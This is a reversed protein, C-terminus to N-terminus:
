QYQADADPEKLGTKTSTCAFSRAAFSPLRTSPSYLSASVTPNSPEWATHSDPSSLRRTNSDANLMAGKQATTAFGRNVYKSQDLLIMVGSNEVISDKIIPSSTIDKLEQAVVMASTRHKRATKWLELIYTAMQTGMVPSDLLLM